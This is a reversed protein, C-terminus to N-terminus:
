LYILVPSRFALALALTVASRYNLLGASLRCWFYYRCALSTINEGNSLLNGFAIIICLSLVLVEVVCDFGCFCLNGTGPEHAM